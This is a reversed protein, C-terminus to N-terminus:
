QMSCCWQFTIDIVLAVAATSQAICHVAVTIDLASVYLCLVFHQVCRNDKNDIYGSDDTVLVVPAASDDQPQLVAHAWYGSLPVNATFALGLQELAACLHKGDSLKAATTEDPLFRPGLRNVMEQLQQAAAMPLPQLFDLAQYLQGLEGRSLIDCVLEDVPQLRELLAFFTDVCLMSSVALSWAANCYAQKDVVSRDIRLLGHVLATSVHTKVHLRLVACALLTTSLSHANPAQGPLDCLATLRELIASAVCDPLAHKMKGLARMVHAAEQASPQKCKDSHKILMAFHDCVAGTLSQDAHEHGLTALAWM